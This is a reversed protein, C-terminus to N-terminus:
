KRSKRLKDREAPTPNKLYAIYKEYTVETTMARRRLMASIEAKSMKGSYDVYHDALVNFQGLLILISLEVISLGRFVSAKYKAFEAEKTKQHARLDKYYIASSYHHAMHDDEGFYDDDGDIITTANVCEIQKGTEDFEIFGHFGFNLLALFYTMCLLPQLIIWFVFNPSRTIALVVGLCVAYSKMGLTMKSYHDKNGNAAYFVTSSYGIMHQFIRSVYLMFDSVSARNLDWQYFTDGVGGDLRHHISVHSTTFSYPVIGYFMGLWNEFFNGIVGRLPKKYLAFNHGEKHALAYAAGMVRGGIGVWSCYYLGVLWMPLSGRSLQWYFLTGMAIVSNVLLLLATAFFDSHQSKTYIYRMAFGRLLTNNDIIDYIPLLLHKLGLKWIGGMGAIPIAWCVLFNMTMAIGCLKHVVRTFAFDSEEQRTMSDVKATKPSTPGFMVMDRMSVNIGSNTVMTHTVLIRFIRM